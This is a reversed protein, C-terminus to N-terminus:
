DGVPRILTIEGAAELQRITRVIEAQARDAEKRNIEGAEGIEASIAEAMRSSISSLIFQRAGPANTAAGALAKVLVASNVARVVLSIAGRAVRTEIDEFTIMNRRVAESFEPDLDQIQGLVGDRLEPAAYNMIAGVRHAPGVQSTANGGALLSTGISKGIVEISHASVTKMGRFFLLIQRVQDAPLDSVVTGAYEPPLKSLIVAASQPHERAIFGALVEPKVTALRQWVDTGSHLDFGESLRAAAADGLYNGIMRVAAYAGGRVSGESRDLEAMFEAVTGRVTVGDVAGLQAMVDVFRRITEEDLKAFVPAAGEQDLLCLIVAAKQARTLATRHPQETVRAIADTM